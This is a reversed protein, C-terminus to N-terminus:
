SKTFKKMHQFWCMSLFLADSKTCTCSVESNLKASNLEACLSIYVGESTTLFSGQGPSQIKLARSIVFVFFTLGNLLERVARESLIWVWHQDVPSSFEGYGCGVLM